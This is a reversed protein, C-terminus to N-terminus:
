LAGNSRRPRKRAGSPESPSPSRSDRRRIMSRLSALEQEVKALRGELRSESETDQVEPIVPKRDEDVPNPTAHVIDRERRELEREREEVALERQLLLRERENLGQAVELERQARQDAVDRERQEAAQRERQELGHRDARAMEAFFAPCYDSSLCNQRHGDPRTRYLLIVTHFKDEQYGLRRGKYGRWLDFKLHAKCHFARDNDLPFSGRFHPRRWDALGADDENVFALTRLYDCYKESGDQPLSNWGAVLEWKIEFRQDPAFDVIGVTKQSTRYLMLPELPTRDGNVLVTFKLLGDLSTLPM